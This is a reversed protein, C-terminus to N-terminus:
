SIYDKIMDVYIPGIHNMSYNEWMFDIGEKSLNSRYEVDTILRELANYWEEDTRCIVAPSDLYSPVPSAVVPLGISMPYAIKTNSHSLGEIGEMPRPAIMIDGMKFLEVIKSQDYRVYENDFETIEPSENTIFLMRCNYKEQLRRIVDKIALTDRCKKGYGCYCLTVRETATHVKPSDFFDDEVNDGIINMNSHYKAFKDYQVQGCPNVVDMLETLRLVNNRELNDTLSEDDIFECYPDMILYTGQAKLRKAWEVARDRHVKMFFAVKYRKWPKYLEARIGHENFYTMLDYVRMRCSALAKNYPQVDDIIFAVECKGFSRMIDKLLFGDISRM